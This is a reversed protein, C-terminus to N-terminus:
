TWYINIEIKQNLFKQDRSIKPEIMPVGLYSELCYIQLCLLLCLLQGGLLGHGANPGENSGVPNKLLVKHNKLIKWGTKVKEVFFYERFGEFCLVNKKDNYYIVRAEQVKM